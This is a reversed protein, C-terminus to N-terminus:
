RQFTAHWQNAQQDENSMMLYEMEPVTIVRLPRAALIEQSIAPAGAALLM